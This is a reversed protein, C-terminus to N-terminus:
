LTFSTSSGSLIFANYCGVTKDGLRAVGRRNAFTLISASVIIGTHGCDAIVKDGIRAIGRKDAFSDASASVIRGRVMIPTIHCRCIGYTKDGLRAIGRIM